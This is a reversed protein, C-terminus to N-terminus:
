VASRSRMKLKLEPGLCFVWSCREAEAARTRVGTSQLLVQWIDFTLFLFHKWEWLWWKRFYLHHKRVSVSVSLALLCRQAKLIGGTNEFIGNYGHSVLGPFRREVESSKIHEYPICISTLAVRDKDLIREPGMSIVGTNRFCVYAFNWPIDRNVAKPFFQM